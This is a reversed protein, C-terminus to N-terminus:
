LKEHVCLEKFLTKGYRCKSQANGVKGEKDKTVCAGCSRSTSETWATVVGDAIKTAYAMIKERSMVIGQAQITPIGIIGIRMRGLDTSAVRMATKTLVGTTAM